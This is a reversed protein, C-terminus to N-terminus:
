RVPKRPSLKRADDIVGIVWALAVLAFYALLIGGAIELM